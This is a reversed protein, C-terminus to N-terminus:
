DIYCFAPVFQIDLLAQGCEDCECDPYHMLDGFPDTNPNKVRARNSNNETYSCWRLNLPHNNYTDGDLHDVIPKDTPAAGMFAEAVVRHFARKTRCNRIYFYCNPETARDYKFEMVKDDVCERQFRNHSSVWVRMEKHFRWHEDPISHPSPVTRRVDRRSGVPTWTLLDSHIRGAVYRPNNTDFYATPRPRDSAPPDLFTAALVNVVSVAEFGGDTAIDIKTRRTAYRDGRAQMLKYGGYKNVLYRDGSLSFCAVLPM